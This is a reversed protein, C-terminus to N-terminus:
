FVWTPASGSRLRDIVGRQLVRSAYACLLGGGGQNSPALALGAAGRARSGTTSAETSRQAVDSLSSLSVMAATAQQPGEAAQAETSCFHQAGWLTAHPLSTCM